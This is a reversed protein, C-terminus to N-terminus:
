DEKGPTKYNHDSHSPILTELSDAIRALSRDISILRSSVQIMPDMIVVNSDKEAKNAVGTLRSHRSNNLTLPSSHRPASRIGVEQIANEIDKANIESHNDAFACILAADCIRNVLRPIGGSHKAVLIAADKTFIKTKKKQVSALRYAIYKQVDVDSLPALHYSLLVRQELQPIKNIHVSLEPQGVLIIKLLPGTQGELGTLMRVDELNELSLNQAEDILFVQQRKNAELEKLYNHIRNLTEIKKNIDHINLGLQSAILDFLESSSVNTYSVKLFEVGVPPRAVLRNILTTKGTGIEGTIVMFGYQNWIAYDMLTLARAHQHSAYIKLCNPSIDFPPKSFGFHELYM